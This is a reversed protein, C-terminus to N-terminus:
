FVNRWNQIELLNFILIINIRFLQFNAEELEKTDINDLNGHIINNRIKKLKDTSIQLTEVPIFNDILFQNLPSNMPKYVLNKKANKWKNEFESLDEAFITSKLISISDLINFPM